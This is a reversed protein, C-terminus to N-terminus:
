GLPRPDGPGGHPHVDRVQHLLPADQPLSVEEGVAAIHGHGPRHIHVDAAAGGAGQHPPVGVGAGDGHAHPAHPPVDGVVEPQQPHPHGEESGQPLIGMGALHCVGALPQTDVQAPGEVDGPAGGGGVKEEAVLRPVHGQGHGVHANILGKGRGVKGAM